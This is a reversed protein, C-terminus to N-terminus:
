RRVIVTDNVHKPNRKLVEVCKSDRKWYQLFDKIQETSKYLKPDLLQELDGSGHQKIKEIQFNMFTQLIAIYTCVYIGVYM